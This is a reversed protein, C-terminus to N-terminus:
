TSKEMLKSYRWGLQFILQIRRLFDIYVNTVLDVSANNLRIFGPTPDGSTSTNYKYLYGIGPVGPAGAAGDTGTRKYWLGAFDGAVPSPIETTTSIVATYALQPDDSTTFATGTADSAFARYEYANQGAPGIMSVAAPWAGAVKPGYLAKAADDIYYQDNTGLANDPAGTGHIVSLGDAGDTGDIGDVGLRPWWLGTFDGAIPPDLPVETFKIALYASTPNATMTFGTGSADDAFAIYPSTTNDIVITNGDGDKFNGSEYSALKLLKKISKQAGIIPSLIWSM